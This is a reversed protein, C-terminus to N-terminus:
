SMGEELFLTKNWGFIQYCKWVYWKWAFLLTFYWSGNIYFILHLHFDSHVYDFGRLCARLCVCTCLHITSSHIQTELTITILGNVWVMSSCYSIMIPGHINREAGLQLSASIGMACLQWSHPRNYCDRRPTGLELYRSEGPVAGQRNTSYWILIVYM